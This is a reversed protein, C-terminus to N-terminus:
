LGRDDPPAIRSMPWGSPGDTRAATPPHAAATSARAMGAGAQGMRSFQDPEAFDAMCAPVERGKYQAIAQAYRNWSELHTLSFCGFIKRSVFRRFTFVKQRPFNSYLAVGAVSARLWRTCRTTGISPTSFSLGPHVFFYVRFGGPRYRGVYM